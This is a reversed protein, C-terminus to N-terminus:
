YFYRSPRFMDKVSLAIRGATNQRTVIYRPAVVGGFETYFLVSNGSSLGDFDFILKRSAADKVAEWSLLRVANQSNDNRTSMFYFSFRTDWICFLAATLDKNQDRVALIRGQNRTLSAEILNCIINKECVNQGARAKINRDYHAWFELPDNMDTVTITQQAQRIKKRQKSRINAWLVEETDPHIEHTFQVSTNFNEQQFPIVDTIDRHCKYQYIAAPPLKQILERTLDSRRLFQTPGSGKGDIIAPGLFHTMPPMISYKMGYRSRIFYPLQGAVAGQETVQAVDYHGGTVINLWWPEHFITPTLPNFVPAPTPAPDTGSDKPVIYLNSASM